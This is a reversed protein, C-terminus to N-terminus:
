PASVSVEAEREMEPQELTGGLYAALLVEARQYFDMQDVQSLSHSSKEYTVYEVTNGQMRLKKVFRDAVKTRAIPDREGSAMLLPIDIRQTHYYPSRSRLDEINLRDTDNWDTSDKVEGEHFGESYRPVVGVRNDLNTRYAEWTPPINGLYDALDIFPNVAVAATFVGPTFCAGALAAYGGYSGGFIAVKNKKAIGQKVLWQVGDVLDTSMAEGWERNGANLFAKGYGDSGRFNVQLVAYGRNALWQVEPNYGWMDRRWPGGHVLVVTPWPARGSRPKTLYGHLVLGDRATFEIPEMKALTGDVPERANFLTSLSDASRNYLYFSPTATDLEQMVIWMESGLSRSVIRFDGELQQGVNAVAESFGPDIDIYKLREGNVVASIPTYTRNDLHIYAIDYDDDVAILEKKRTKMDYAFLARNDRDRSDFLYLTDGALNFALPWSADDNITWTIERTFRKEERHYRWFSQGGDLESVLKARLNLHHDVYWRLLEDTGRALEVREGTYLNVKYLDFVSPIRMNMRLAVWAPDDVDREIVELAIDHTIKRQGPVVNQALVPWSEDTGIEYAYLGREAESTSVYLLLKSDLSWFHYGVREEGEQIVTEEGNSLNRAVLKSDGKVNEVWSIWGGDPSVRVQSRFSPSFFEDRPILEPTRGCGVLLLGLLLM